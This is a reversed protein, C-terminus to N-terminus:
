RRHFDALERERGNREGRDDDWSCSSQRSCLEEAGASSISTSHVRKARGVQIIRGREQQAPDYCSCPVFPIEIDGSKM